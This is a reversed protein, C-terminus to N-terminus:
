LPKSIRKKSSYLIINIISTIGDAKIEELFSALKKSKKIRGLTKKESFKLSSIMNLQAELDIMINFSEFEKVLSEIDEQKVGLKQYVEIDHINGNFNKMEYLLTNALPSFFSYQLPIEKHYFMLAYKQIDNLEM